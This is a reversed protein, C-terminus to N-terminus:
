QPRLGFRARTNVSAAAVCRVTVPPLRLAAMFSAGANIYRRAGQHSAWRGHQVIDLVPVGRLYDDTAGGHRCSHLVFGIGGAGIRVIAANFADRLQDYSLGFLPDLPDRGAVRRRLLDRVLDNRVTVFQNRGTKTDPLRICAVGLERHLQRLNINTAPDAFDGVTLHVAEGARLHADHMLLIADGAATQGHIYLDVAVALAVGYSIPPLSSSPAARAWGRLARDSLGLHGDVQPLCITSSGANPMPPMPKLFAKRGVFIFIIACPRMLIM